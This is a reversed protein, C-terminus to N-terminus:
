RSMSSPKMSEAQMLKSVFSKSKEIKEKHTANTPEIGSSDMGYVTVVETELSKNDLKEFLKESTEEKKKENYNNMLHYSILNGIVPIITSFAFIAKQVLSLKDYDRPKENELKDYANSLKELM